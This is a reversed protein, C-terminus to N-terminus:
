YIGDEPLVWIFVVVFLGAIGLTLQVAGLLWVGAGLLFFEQWFGEPSLFHRVGLYIWAPIGAIVVVGLTILAKM